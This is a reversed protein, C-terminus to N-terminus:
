KDKEDESEDEDDESEDEDDPEPERVIVEGDEGYEVWGIYGTIVLSSVIDCLVSIIVFPMAYYFAEVYGQMYMLGYAILMTIRIQWIRTLSTETDVIIDNIGIMVTLVLYYFITSYVAITAVIAYEAEVAGFVGFTALSALLIVELITM